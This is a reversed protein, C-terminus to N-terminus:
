WETLIAFTSSVKKTEGSGVVDDAMKYIFNRLKKPWCNNGYVIHRFNRIQCNRSNDTNIFSDAKPSLPYM